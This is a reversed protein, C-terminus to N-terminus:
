GKNRRATEVIELVRSRFRKSEESNIRRGFVRVAGHMMRFFVGVARM